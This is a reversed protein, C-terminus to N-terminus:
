DIPLDKGSSGSHCSGHNWSTGSFMARPQTRPPRKVRRRRRAAAAQVTSCSAACRFYRLRGRNPRGGEAQHGPSGACAALLAATLAAALTSKRINM